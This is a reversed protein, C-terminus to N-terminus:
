EAGGKMIKMRERYLEALASEGVMMKDLEVKYRHRVIEMTEEGVRIKENLESLKTM